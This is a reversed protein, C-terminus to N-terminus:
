DARRRRSIGYLGGALSIGVIAILRIADSGGTVTLEGAPHVLFGTALMWTLVGMVAAAWLDAAVVAYLCGVVGMVAFRTELQAAPVLLATIACAAIAVFFGIGILIETSRPGKHSRPSRLLM